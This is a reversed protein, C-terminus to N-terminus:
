FTGTFVYRGIFYVGAVILSYVLLNPLISTKSHIVRGGRWLNFMVVAGVLVPISILMYQTDLKWINGLMTELWGDVRFLNFSLGGIGTLVLAIIIFSELFEVLQKM